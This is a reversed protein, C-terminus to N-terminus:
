RQFISFFELWLSLNEHLFDRCELRDLLTLSGLSIYHGLGSEFWSVKKLQRSLCCLVGQGNPWQTRALHSKYVHM